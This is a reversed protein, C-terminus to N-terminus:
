ALFDRIPPAGDDPQDLLFLHGGGPVIHLRANPILRALQQANAPPVAPDDDGAVIMTPQRLEHVWPLSSFTATVLLQYAYGRLSPPHALRAPVQDDLLGPERATRGGAIAATTLRALAPHYYRAPTALLLAALPRPPTGGLGVSTACLVLRRVREPARRALVQALGGGWSYGLVDVRDLELADLLALVHAALAPLRMPLRPLESGGTGPADFAVLRHGRMRRAFPEWMGVHAGIGTILLLPIGDGDQTAVRVGLGGVHLDTTIV